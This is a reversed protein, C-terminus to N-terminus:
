EEGGTPDPEEAPASEEPAPAEEKKGCGTMCLTVLMSLTLFLALTRKM